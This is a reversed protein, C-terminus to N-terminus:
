RGGEKVKHFIYKNGTRVKEIVLDSVIRYGAAAMIGSVKEVLKVAIRKDREERDINGKAAYYTPDRNLYARRSMGTKGM